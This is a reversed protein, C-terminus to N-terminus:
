KVIFDKVDINRGAIWDRNNIWFSAKNAASHNLVANKREQYKQATGPKRDQYKEIKKDFLNIAEKAISEAWKIQKESGETINIQAKM